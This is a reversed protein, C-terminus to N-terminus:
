RLARSEVQRFDRYKNQLLAACARGAAQGTDLCTGMVRVTGNAGRDSSICRGAAIVNRLGKPLMSRYPIHYSGGGPIPIRVQDTGRGHIDVHHCGCAVADDFRRAALVDEQTLTYEGEIRGSERVGIKHMISCISAQAFGPLLEQFLRASDAVQASLQPLTGSLAEEDACNLGSVRTVNMCVERRKRSTPNIFAATCPHLRGSSLAGSLLQSHSSLALYPLGNRYLRLAAETQDAPLVPNECLIAEQPHDRVYSLIKEFDVGCMRYLLSVPQFERQESGYRVVAGCMASLHGGGTADVACACSIQRRSNKGHVILSRVSGNEVEVGTVATNLLLRVGYRRLLAYVALRLIEPDLCLGHVTRYDCVPGLWADPDLKRCEHELETLIGYVCQEGRSTFAGLVPMGSFLDGGVGGEMEILLTELGERASTLAAAIGAAGGGAVICDM